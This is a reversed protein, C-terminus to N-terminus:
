SLQPPVAVIAPRFIERAHSHVTDLTGLAVLNFGKIVCRADLILTCLAEKEGDFWPATVIHKRWFRFADAPKHTFQKKRPPGCEHLRVVKFEAPNYRYRLSM